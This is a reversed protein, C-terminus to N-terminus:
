LKVPYNNVDASFMKLLSIKLDLILNMGLWIKKSAWIYQVHEPYNLRVAQIDGVPAWYYKINAENTDSEGILLSTSIEIGTEELTERAAADQPHEGRDIHGGPLGWTNPCFDNVQSRKLLLIESKDNAIIMDSFYEKKKVKPSKAIIIENTLRELSQTGVIGVTNLYRDQFYEDNRIMGISKEMHSKQMEVERRLNSEWNEM